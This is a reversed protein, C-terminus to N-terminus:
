RWASVAEGDLRVGGDGLAVVRWDRLRVLPGERELRDALEVVAKDPGSLRLRLRVLGGRTAVPEAQEVLVGGRAALTRVRDALARAANRENTAPIQLASPILPLPKGLAPSALAAAEARAERARALKGLATGTAPALLLAAALGGCAGAMISARTM